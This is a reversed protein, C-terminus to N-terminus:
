ALAIVKAVVTTINVITTRILKPWTDDVQSRQCTTMDHQRYRLNGCLCGLDDPVGAPLPVRSAQPDDGQSRGQTCRVLFHPTFSFPIKPM